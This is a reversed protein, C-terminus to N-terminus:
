STKSVNKSKVGKKFNKDTSIQVKYGSARKDKPWKLCLKKGKAATPKVSPKKPYVKVTVKKSAKGAKISDRICVEGKQITVKSTYKAAEKVLMGAPRAHLGMEDNVKFTIKVM